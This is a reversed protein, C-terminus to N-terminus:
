GKMNKPCMLPTSKKTVEDQNGSVQSQGQNIWRNAFQNISGNTLLDTSRNPKFGQSAQRNTEILLKFTLNLDNEM